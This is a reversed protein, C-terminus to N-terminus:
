LTAVNSELTAVNLISGEPVDVNFYRREPVDHHQGSCRSTSILVRSFTAVNAWVDRRQGTKLGM